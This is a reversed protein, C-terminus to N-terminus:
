DEAGDVAGVAELAQNGRGAEGATGTDLWEGDRHELLENSQDQNRGRARSPPAIGNNVQQQNAMNAQKAFIVARPNKIEALAEVTSRCQAQAKLALRLNVEMNQIYECNAAKRALQNFIVDLTNAQSVLMAEMDSLDGAKVTEAQRRLEQSYATLDLDGSFMERAFRRGTIAGRISPNSALIAGREQADKFVIGTIHLDNPNRKEIDPETTGNTPRKTSVIEKKSMDFKEMSLPFVRRRTANRQM